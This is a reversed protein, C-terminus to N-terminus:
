GRRRLEVFTYPYPNNSDSEHHEKNVTLWEEKLYEPFFTDAKFKGEIETLFMKKAYPLLQKFITGGGIVWLDEKKARKIVPELSSVVKADSLKEVSKSVVTVDEVGLVKRINKYDHYTKEGLVIKKGALLERVRDIDARMLPWPLRGKNGMGFNKDHAGVFIIM